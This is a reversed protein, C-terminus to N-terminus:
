KRNKMDRLLRRIAKIEHAGLSGKNTLKDDMKTIEDKEEDSVLDWNAYVSSILEEPSNTNM